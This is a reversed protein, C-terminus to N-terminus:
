RWPGKRNIIILLLRLMSLYRYANYIYTSIVYGNGVGVTGGNFNWFPYTIEGRCMVVSLSILNNQLLTM